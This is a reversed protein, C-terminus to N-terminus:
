KWGKTFEASYGQGVSYYGVCYKGYKQNWSNMSENSGWGGDSELKPANDKNNFFFVETLEETNYPLTQAVAIMKDDTEKTDTYNEVYYTYWKGVSKKTKNELPIIKVDGKPESIIYKNVNKNYGGEGSFKAFFGDGPIAELLNTCKTIDKIMAKDTYFFVFQFPRPVILERGLKILVAANTDTVYCM